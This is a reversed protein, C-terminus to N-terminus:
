VGETLWISVEEVGELWQNQDMSEQAAQGCAPPSRRPPGPSPSSSCTRGVAGEEWPGPVSSPPRHRAPSSTRIPHKAHKALFAIIYSVENPYPTTLRRRRSSACKIGGYTRLKPSLGSKLDPTVFAVVSTRTPELEKEKEGGVM